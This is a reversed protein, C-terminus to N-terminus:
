STKVNKPAKCVHLSIAGRLCALEQTHHVVQKFGSKLTYVSPGLVTGEGVNEDSVCWALIIETM